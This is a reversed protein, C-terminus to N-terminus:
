DICLYYKIREVMQATYGTDGTRYHLRRLDAMLDPCHTTERWLKHLRSEPKINNAYIADALEQKSYDKVELM